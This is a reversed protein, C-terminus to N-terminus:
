GFNVVGQLPLRVLSIRGDACLWSGILGGEEKLMVPSPTITRSTAAVSTKNATSSEAITAMEVTTVGDSAM